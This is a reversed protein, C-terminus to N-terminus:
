KTRSFAALLSKLHGPLKDGDSGHRKVAREMRADDTHDPLSFARKQEHPNEEKHVPTSSAREPPSLISSVDKDTKTYKDFLDSMSLSQRLANSEKGRKRIPSPLVAIKDASCYASVTDFSDDPMKPARKPQVLTSSKESETQPYNEFIDRISLSLKVAPLNKGRKRQMPSLTDFSRPGDVAGLGLSSEHVQCTDSKSPSVKKATNEEPMNKEKSAKFRIRELSANLISIMRENLTWKINATNDPTTKTTEEKVTVEEGENESAPYNEFVDYLNLSQETQAKEKGRKRTIPSSQSNIVQVKDHSNYGKTTDLSNHYSSGCCSDLLKMDDTWCFAQLTDLSDDAHGQCNSESVNGYSLRSSRRLPESM